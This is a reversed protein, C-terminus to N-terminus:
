AGSSPSPSHHAWSSSPQSTASPSRSSPVTIRIISSGEQSASSTAGAAPPALMQEDRHDFVRHARTLVEFRRISTSRSKM